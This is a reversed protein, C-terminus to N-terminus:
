IFLPIIYVVRGARSRTPRRGYRCVVFTRSQALFMLVQVFRSILSPAGGEAALIAKFYIEAFFNVGPQTPSM